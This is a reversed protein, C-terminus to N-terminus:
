AAKPHGKKQASAAVSFGLPSVFALGGSRSNRGRLM